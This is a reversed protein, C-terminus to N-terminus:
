SCVKDTIWKTPMYEYMLTTQLPTPDSDPDPDYALNRVCRKIADIHYVMGGLRDTCIAVDAQNERGQLLIYIFVPDHRNRRM